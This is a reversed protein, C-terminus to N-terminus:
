RSRPFGSLPRGRLMGGAGEWTPRCDELAALIKRIAQELAVDAPTLGGPAGRLSGRLVERQEWVVDRFVGLAATDDKRPM